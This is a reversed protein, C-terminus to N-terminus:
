CIKFLHKIWVEDNLSKKEMTGLTKIFFENQKEQKKANAPFFKGEYVKVLTDFVSFLTM